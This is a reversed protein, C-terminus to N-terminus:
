VTTFFSYNQGMKTVEIGYKSAIHLPTEGDRNLANINESNLLSTVQKSDGRECAEHLESMSRGYTLQM